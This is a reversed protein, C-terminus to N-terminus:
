LSLSLLAFISLDAAIHALYVPFLGGAKQRIIGLLIGALILFPVGYLGGAFGYWHWLGFVAAQILVLGTRRSTTGAFRPRGGARHGSGASNGFLPQELIDWLIGRFLTELVFANTLAFGISVGVMRLPSLSPMMGLFVETRGAGIQTWLFFGVAMAAMTLAILPLAGRFFSGARLWRPRHEPRLGFRALFVLTGVPVLYLFGAFCFGTTICLRQAVPWWLHIMLFGAAALFRWGLRDRWLFMFFLGAGATIWYLGGTDGSLFQLTQYLVSDVIESSQAEGAAPLGLM